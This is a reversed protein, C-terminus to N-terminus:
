DNLVTRMMHAAREIRNTDTVKTNMTRIRGEPSELNFDFGWINENLGLYHFGYTLKQRYFVINTSQNEM